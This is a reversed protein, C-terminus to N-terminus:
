IRSGRSSGEHEVGMGAMEVMGAAALAVLALAAGISDGGPDESAEVGKRGAPRRDAAAVDAGEDQGDELALRHVAILEELLELGLAAAAPPGAGPRLERGE